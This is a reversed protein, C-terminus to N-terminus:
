KLPIVRLYIDNTLKAIDEVRFVTEEILHHLFFEPKFFKKTTQWMEANETKLIKYLEHARQETIKGQHLTYISHWMIKSGPSALRVDCESFIMLAASAAGGVIMCRIEVGRSQAQRMADIFERAPDVLGGPSNILIKVVKDTTKRLKAADPPLIAMPHPYDPLPADTILGVVDISLAAAPTSVLACLLLLSKLM